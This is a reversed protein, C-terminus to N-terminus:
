VGVGDMVRAGSVVGRKLFGGRRGGKRFLVGGLFERMNLMLFVDGYGDM